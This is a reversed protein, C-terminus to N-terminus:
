ESVLRVPELIEAPLRNRLRGILELLSGGARVAQEHPLDRGQHRDHEHQRSQEDIQDDPGQSLQVVRDAPQAAALEAGRNRDATGSVQLIEPPAQVPHALAEQVQLVLLGGEQPVHGM